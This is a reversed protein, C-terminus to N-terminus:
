ALLSSISNIVEDIESRTNNQALSFRVSSVTNASEAGYMAQIVHSPRSMGSDCASSGSAMIGRESLQEIFLDLDVVNTLAISTTNDLREAGYGNITGFPMMKNEFYDRLERMSPADTELASELALSMGYIAPLNHTGPRINFEQSGGEMMPKILDFISDKVILAGAGKPGHMKHGSITVTIAQEILAEPLGKSKFYCQSADIHLKVRENSCIESAHMGPDSIIGTENNAYMCALVIQHIGGYLRIKYRLDELDVTGNAHVKILDHAYKIVSKHETALALVVHGSKLYSSLAISNAETASSTFVVDGNKLRM